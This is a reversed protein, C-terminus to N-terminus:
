YGTNVFINDFTATIEGQGTTNTYPWIGMHLIRYPSGPNGTFPFETTPDLTATLGDFGYTLVKTGPDFSITLTHPVRSQVNTALTGSGPHGIATSCHADTCKNAWFIVNLTTTGAEADSIYLGAYVDNTHSGPTAGGSNYWSGFLVVGAFATAADFSRVNVETQITTLNNVDAGTKNFWLWQSGGLGPNSRLSMLLKGRKIHRTIELSRSSGGLWKSSDIQRGSFDDYLTLQAEAPATGVFLGSVMLVSLLSIVTIAKM